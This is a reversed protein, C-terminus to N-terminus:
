LSGLIDDFFRIRLLYFPAKAHIPLLVGINHDRLIQYFHKKFHVFYGLFHKAEDRIGHLVPLLFQYCFTFDWSADELCQGEVNINTIDIIGSLWM